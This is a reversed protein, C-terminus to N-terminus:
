IEESLFDEEFNFIGEVNITLKIMSRLEPQEGIEIQDFEEIPFYSSIISCVEKIDITEVDGWVKLYVTYKSGPVVPVVVELGTVTRDNHQADGKETCFIAPTTEGNALHYTGLHDILISRLKDRLLLATM